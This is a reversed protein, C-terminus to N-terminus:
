RANTRGRIAEADRRVNEVTRNPALSSLKLDSAGKWALGAAIAALVAGVVFAAWGPDMGADALGTVIAAALVNLATVAIVLAGALMGIAAAAQTLNQQLEARALDVESRVLSSAHALADGILTATAPEDRASM